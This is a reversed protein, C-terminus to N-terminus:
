VHSFLFGLCNCLCVSTRILTSSSPFSPVYSKSVQETYSTLSASYRITGEINVGFCGSTNYVLRGVKVGVEGLTLNTNLRAMQMQGSPLVVEDNGEPCYTLPSPYQLLNMAEYTVGGKRYDIFSVRFSRYTQTFTLEDAWLFRHNVSKILLQSFM